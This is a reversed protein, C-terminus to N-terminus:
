CSAPSPTGLRSFFSAALWCLAMIPWAWGIDMRGLAFADAAFPYSTFICAAIGFCLSFNQLLKLREYEDIRLYHRIVALLMLWLPVIPLLLIISRALVGRGAVDLLPTRLLVTAVELAVAAGMEALYRLSSRKESDM